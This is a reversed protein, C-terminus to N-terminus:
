LSISSAVVSVGVGVLSSQAFSAHFCVPKELVVPTDDVIVLTGYVDLIVTGFVLYANLYM